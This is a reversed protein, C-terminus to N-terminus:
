HLNPDVKWDMLVDLTLEWSKPCKFFEVLGLNNLGLAYLEPIFYLKKPNEEGGNCTLRFEQLLCGRIMTCALSTKYIANTFSCLCKVTTCYAVCFVLQEATVFRFDHSLHRWMHTRHCTHSMPLSGFHPVSANADALRLVRISRKDQM